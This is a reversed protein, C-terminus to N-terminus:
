SAPSLRYYTAKGQVEKSVMGKIILNKFLDRAKDEGFSCAYQMPVERKANGGRLSERLAREDPSLNTVTEENTSPVAQSEIDRGLVYELKKRRHRSSGFFELTAFVPFPPVLLDKKGFRSSGQMGWLPHWRSFQRISSSLRYAM